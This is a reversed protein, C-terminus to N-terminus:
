IGVLAAAIGIGVGTLSLIGVVAALEVWGLAVLAGAIFAAVAYTIGFILLNQVWEEFTPAHGMFIVFFLFQGSSPGVGTSPMVSMTPGVVGIGYWAFSFAFPLLVVFVSSALLAIRKERKNKNKALSLIPQEALSELLIENM